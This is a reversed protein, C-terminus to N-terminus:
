PCVLMHWASLSFLNPQLKQFLFCCARGDGESPVLKYGVTFILSLYVASAYKYGNDVTGYFTERMWWTHIRFNQGHSIAIQGISIFDM